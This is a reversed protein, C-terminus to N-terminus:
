CLQLRMQRVLKRLEDVFLDETMEVSLTPGLVPALAPWHVQGLSFLVQEARELQTGNREVLRKLLTQAVCRVGQPSWRLAPQMRRVHLLAEMGRCWLAVDGSSVAELVCDMLALPEPCGDALLLQEAVAVCHVQLWEHTPSSCVFYEAVVCAVSIFVIVFEFLRVLFAGSWLRSMVM